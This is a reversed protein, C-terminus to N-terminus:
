ASGPRTAEKLAYVQDLEAGTYFWGCLQFVLRLGSLDDETM